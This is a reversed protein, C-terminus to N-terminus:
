IRGSCKGIDINGARRARYSGLNGVVSVDYTIEGIGKTAMAEKIDAAVKGGEVKRTSGECLPKTNVQRVLDDTVVCVRAAM